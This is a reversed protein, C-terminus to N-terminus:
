LRLWVASHHIQREGQMGWSLSAGMPLSTFIEPRERFFQRHQKHRPSLVVHTVPYPRDPARWEWSVAIKSMCNHSKWKTNIYYLHIYALQHTIRKGSKNSGGSTHPWTEMTLAPCLVTFYDIALYMDKKITRTHNLNKKQSQWNPNKSGTKAWTRKSSTTLSIFAWTSTKQSFPPLWPRVTFPFGSSKTNSSTFECTRLQILLCSAYICNHQWM